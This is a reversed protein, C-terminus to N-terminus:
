CTNWKIQCLGLSSTKCATDLMGPMPPRRGMHPMTMLPDIVPFPEGLPNLPKTDEEGNGGQRTDGGRTSTTDGSTAAAKGQGSAVATGQKHDPGKAAFTAVASNVLESLKDLNKFSKSINSTDGTTYEAVPLEINQPTAGEQNSVLCALLTDGMVLIKTMLMLDPDSESQYLFTYQDDSANWNHISADPADKPADTFVNLHPTPKLTPTEIPQM